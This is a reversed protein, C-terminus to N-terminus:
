RLRRTATDCHRTFVGFLFSPRRRTSPLFYTNGGLGGLNGGDKSWRMLAMLLVFQAFQKGHAQQPMQAWRLGGTIM